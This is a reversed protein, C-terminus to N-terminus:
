IIEDVFGLSLAKEADMYYDLKERTIKNLLRKTINSNDLYIKNMMKWLRKTEDVNEQQEEGKGVSGSSTEHIMVTGFRNIRRYNALVLFLTAMSASISNTTAIIRYGMDKLECIKGALAFGEYCLGGPSSIVLEIDRKVGKKDKKDLAVLRDLLYITSFISDEEVFGNFYIKRDRLASNIKMQEITQQEHYNSNNM